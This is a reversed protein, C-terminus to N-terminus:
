TIHYNYETNAPYNKLYSRICYFFVRETRTRWQGNNWAVFFSLYKIKLAGHRLVFLLWHSLDSLYNIALRDYKTDRSHYYLAFFNFFELNLKMLINRPCISTFIFIEHNLPTHRTPCQFLTRMTACSHNITSLRLRYISGETADYVCEGPVRNHLTGRPAILNFTLNM